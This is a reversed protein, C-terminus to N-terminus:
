ANDKIEEFLSLIEVAEEEEVKQIACGAHVLLYDGERVDKLLEISVEKQVGMFDLVATKETKSIVKGPVAVCM